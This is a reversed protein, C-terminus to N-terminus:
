GSAVTRGRQCPTASEVTQEVGDRYSFIATNIWEGSRPCSAPTTIYGKRRKGRGSSVAKVDLVVRDIATFEDPPGGPIPPVQTTFSGGRVEARSVARGGTGEEEFLFIVQDDNNLLTVNNRVIRAPGPLGTDLDVKGAGVVSDEPCASAGQVILVPDPAACQAPVSTDIKAGSALRLVVKQVAFPKANPDTPNVYDIVEFFGTSSGPRQTTFALEFTQRSQEQQAGSPAAALALV